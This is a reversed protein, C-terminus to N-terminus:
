SHAEREDGSDFSFCCPLSACLSCQNVYPARKDTRRDALPANQGSETDNTMEYRCPFVPIRGPTLPILFSFAGKLEYGVSSLGYGQM